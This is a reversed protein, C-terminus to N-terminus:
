QKRARVYPELDDREDRVTWFNLASTNLDLTAVTFLAARHLAGPNIFRVGGMTREEPYHTHGFLVVRAAGLISELVASKGEEAATLVRWFEREHGHFVAIEHGEECLRLPVGGPVARLNKAYAVLALDSEDNNGWVFRADRAVLQTLVEPTGIDGCHVLRTAGCRRLGDLARATRALRGHSDSLIGLIM